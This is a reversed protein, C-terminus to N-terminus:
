GSPTTYSVPSSSRSRSTAPREEDGRGPESQWSSRVVVREIYYRTRDGRVFSRAFEVPIGRDTFAIGEILLAPTGPRRGLLRAERARLLVPE